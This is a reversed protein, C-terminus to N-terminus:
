KSPREPSLTIRAPVGDSAVPAAPVLTEPEAQGIASAVPTHAPVIAPGAPSPASDGRLSDLLYSGILLLAAIAAGGAVAWFAYAGYKWGTNDVRGPFLTNLVNHHSYDYFAAGLAGFLGAFMASFVGWAPGEVASTFMMLLLTCVVTGVIGFTLMKADGQACSTSVNFAGHGCSGGVLNMARRTGEYTLVISAALGAAGLGCLGLGLSRMVAAAPKRAPVSPRATPVGTAVAGEPVADSGSLPQGM